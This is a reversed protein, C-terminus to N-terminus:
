LTKLFEEIQKKAEPMLELTKLAEKKAEELAGLEKYYIALYFHYQANSPNIKTLKQYVKVLEQYNKISLYANALQLLSNESNILYRTQGAMEINKQAKEVENLCINTLGMLWWCEGLKPNLNICEQAKRKAGLYDNTLYDIKIWGIFVEQRKPSLQNAKEFYSNAEEKLDKEGKEILVNTYNGLLLWNRTYYPRIETNEKLVNIAKEALIGQFAPPTKELNQSIFEFYNLRLYSDLYSHSDLTNELQKLAEQYNGIKSQTQASRIEKNIQLPKLNYAWIFWILGIFLLGLIVVRYKKLGGLGWVLFKPTPALVTRPLNNEPQYILSLSYAILLFSILNTSFVDFSFFNATFYALFTAQIGHYIVVKEPKVKKLKQLGSFLVTFLSLYIILAPIGATVGIDFIFNHA